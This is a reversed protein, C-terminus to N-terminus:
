EVKFKGILDQLKEHNSTTSAMLGSFHSTHGSFQNMEDNIRKIVASVMGSSEQQEVTIENISQAVEALDHLLGAVSAITDTQGEIAQNIRILQNELEKIWSNIDRLDGTTGSVKESGNSVSLETTKVHGEIEKVSEITRDALKSIEEAVVAFGRGNEGARAAEISANLSLLNTQDSIDNIMGVIDRIQSGSTRIEDMARALEGIGSMGKESVTTSKSSISRVEDMSHNINETANRLEVLRSGIDHMLDNQRRVYRVILEFSDYMGMLSETSEHISDNMSESIRTFDKADSDLTTSITFTAQCTSQIEHVLDRIKEIFVNVYHTLEAIERIRDQSEIRISLDGRGESLERFREILSTLPSMLKRVGVMILVVLFGAIFLSIGAAVGTDAFVGEMLKKYDFSASIYWPNEEDKATFYIQRTHNRDSIGTSFGTTSADVFGDVNGAPDFDKKNRVVRKGDHTVLYIDSIRDEIGNKLLQEIYSIEIEFVVLGTTVGNVVIPHLMLQHYHDKEDFGFFDTVLPRKLADLFFPSVSIDQGEHTGGKEGHYPNLIIKGSLDSIMIHHFMGWNEEQLRRVVKWARDYNQRTEPNSSYNQVPESTALFGAIRRIMDLHHHLMNLRSRTIEHLRTEEERVVARQNYIFYFVNFALIFTISFVNVVIFLRRRFSGESWIRIMKKIM